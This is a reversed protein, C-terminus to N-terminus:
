PWAGVDPCDAPDSFPYPRGQFALVTFQIDSFNAVYNPPDYAASGPTASDDGHLDVWKRDPMAQGPLAQFAFVGATVDDFNTAGDPPSWTEL